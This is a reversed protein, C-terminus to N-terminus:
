SLDLDRLIEDVVEDVARDVNSVKRGLDHRELAAICRDVQALAWERAAADAAEDDPVVTRDAIRQRLTVADVDLVFRHVAVGAATIPGLIEDFYGPVVLTMPVVLTEDYHRDLAVAVDAVLTRWIPLDQFDGTGSPPVLHRLFFGVMEPDYLRAGDLREVLAEAVTTKGAGFAGNIWILVRATDCRTSRRHPRPM